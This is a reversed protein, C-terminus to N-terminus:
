CYIFLYINSMRMFSHRFTMRRRSLKHRFAKTRKWIKRSDRLFPFPAQKVGQFLRHPNWTTKSIFFGFFFSYVIIRVLTNPFFGPHPEFPTTYEKPQDEDVDNALDDAESSIVDQNTIDLVNSNYEDMSRTVNDLIVQNGHEQAHKRFASNPFFREFPDKPNNSNDGVNNNNNNNNNSAMKKVVFFTRTNVPLLVGWITIGRLWFFVSTM